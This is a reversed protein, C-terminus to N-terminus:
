RNKFREPSTRSSASFSLPSPTSRPPCQHIKPSPIRALISLLTGDMCCCRRPSKLALSCYSSSSSSGTTASTAAEHGEADVTNEHPQQNDPDGCSRQSQEGYEELDTSPPIVGQKWNRKRRKRRRRRKGVGQKRRKRSRRRRRKDRKEKLNRNGKPGRNSTWGVIKQFWECQFSVSLRRRRRRRRKRSKYM